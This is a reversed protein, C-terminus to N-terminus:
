HDARFSEPMLMIVDKGLMESLSYRFLKEGAPNVSLITGSDDITIVAPM